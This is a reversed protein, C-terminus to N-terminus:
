SASDGRLEILLTGLARCQGTTDDDDGDDDDDDDDCDDDDSGLKSNSRTAGGGWPRPVRPPPGLLGVGRAGGFPGWVMGKFGHKTYPDTKQSAQKGGAGGLLDGQGVGLPGWFRVQLRM